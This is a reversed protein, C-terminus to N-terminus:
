AHIVEAQISDLFAFRHAHGDAEDTVTGHTIVHRHDMTTSTEGGLFNGEEDYSVSFTHSHGDVEDTGGTIKDPIELVVDVDQRLAMAEMSLGNIEHDLIKQWLVPDAVHIGVVWSYPTFDTDGERAIFSEVIVCGYTTNNDHQVDVMDVRKDTLFTHAMREIEEATMVDGHSDPIGPAYVEAYAIQKYPTEDTKLIQM